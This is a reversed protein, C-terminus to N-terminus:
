VQARASLEKCLYLYRILPTYRIVLMFSASKFVNAYTHSRIDVYTVMGTANIMTHTDYAVHSYQAYSPILLMYIASKCMEVSWRLAMTHSAYKAYSYRVKLTV